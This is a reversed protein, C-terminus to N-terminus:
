PSHTHCQYQEGFRVFLAPLLQFLLLHPACMQRLSRDLCRVSRLGIPISSQRATERCAIKPRLLVDIATIKSAEKGELDGYTSVKAEAAGEISIVEAPDSRSDSTFARM